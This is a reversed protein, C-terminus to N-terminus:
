MGTSAAADSAASVSSAASVTLAKAILPITLYVLFFEYFARPVLSFTTGRFCEYSLILVWLYFGYSWITQAQRLFRRQLWAFILGIVAGRWTADIWGFGLFSEAIAGFGLGGGSMAFEPYFTEVYWAATDFKAIPLVQQPVLNLFDGIYFRPFAEAMDGAPKRESVDYANAFLIEFENNSSLAELGLGENAASLGRAIGLASFLLV